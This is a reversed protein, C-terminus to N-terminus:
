RRGARTSGNEDLAHYYYSTGYRKWLFWDRACNVVVGLLKPKRVAALAQNFINRNTHDPRVVLLIGDVANQVLDFDAVATVPTTDIIVFRFQERVTRLLSKWEPSDLLEAPNSLQSGSPLVHLNPAQEVRVMADRLECKRRLVDALGPTSEIGLTASVTGRRMDADILLVKGNNKLSLAAATNIATVTKGDGSDASSVVIIRPQLEHQLLNTRLMRYQEATRTDTGDFPFVPTRQSLRLRVIRETGSERRVAAQLVPAPGPAPPEAPPATREPVVMVPAAPAPTEGDIGALVSSNRGDEIRKLTEYLRSM